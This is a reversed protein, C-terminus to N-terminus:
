TGTDANLSTLLKSHQIRLMDCIASKLDVKGDWRPLDDACEKCLMGDVESDAPWDDSKQLKLQVRHQRKELLAVHGSVPCLLEINFNAPNPPSVKIDYRYM